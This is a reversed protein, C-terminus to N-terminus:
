KETKKTNVYINLDKAFTRESSEVKMIFKFGHKIFINHKFYCTSLTLEKPDITLWKIGSQRSTGYICNAFMKDDFEYFPTQGDSGDSYATIANKFKNLAEYSINSNNQINPVIIYDYSELNLEDEEATELLKIDITYNEDQIHALYYIDTGSSPFYLVKVPTKGTTKTLRAVTCCQTEFIFTENECAMEEKFKQLSGANHMKVTLFPPFKREYCYFGITLSYIMIAAIVKRFVNNKKRLFMYSLVPFACIVFTMIFRISFVMYGLTCSLILLNIIFGTAITGIILSRKTKKIKKIAIVIAPLFLLFGLVGLGMMNEFRNGESFWVKESIVVGIEPDIGLLAIFIGTIATVLRWTAESFQVGTGYPIDMGSVNIFMSLYRIINAVFAKFGGTFRHHEALAQSSIPNGFDIFNLVYNYAGFILFNVVLFSGCFLLPKYFENKKYCYSIVTCCVFFAPIMQISPTKTGIALAYAVTAFILPAKQNNKVGILFLYLSIVILAAITMNSESSSVSFMVNYMATVAFITWLSINMPIKLEKLFGRAGFMFFIFSFFSLFRVMIDSKIFSYAWFYFIESNIPMVIARADSLEIHNLNCMKYWFPLRAIHYTFADGDYTPVIYCYISSIILFVFFAVATANLWKDHNVAFNFKSIETTIEEKFDIQKKTKKFLFISFILLLFNIAIVNWPKIASFLSLFEYTVIVQGFVTLFYYCLAKYLKKNEISVTILASSLLVSIISFTLLIHMKM